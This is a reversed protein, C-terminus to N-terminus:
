KQVSLSGNDSEAGVGRRVLLTVPPAWGGKKGEDYFCLNKVEFAVGFNTIELHEMSTKFHTAPGQEYLPDLNLEQPRSNTRAGFTM